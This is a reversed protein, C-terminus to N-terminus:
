CSETRDRGESALLAHSDNCANSSLSYLALEISWYPYGASHRVPSGRLSTGLLCYMFSVPNLYGRLYQGTQNSCITPANSRPLFTRCGMFVRFFSILSSPPRKIVRRTTTIRSALHNGHSWGVRRREVTETEKRTTGHELPAKLIWCCRLRRRRRRRSLPNAKM